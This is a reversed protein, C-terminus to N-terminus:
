RPAHLVKNLPTTDSSQARPDHLIERPLLYRRGASCQTDSGGGGAEAKHPRGRGPIQRDHSPGQDVGRPVGVRGLVADHMCGGSAGHSVTIPVGAGGLRKGEIGPSAAHGAGGGLPLRDHDPGDSTATGLGPLSPTPIEISDSPAPTMYLCRAMWGARDM